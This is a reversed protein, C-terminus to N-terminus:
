LYCCRFVHVVALVEDEEDVCHMECDVSQKWDDSVLVFLEPM